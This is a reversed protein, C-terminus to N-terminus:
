SSAKKHQEIYPIFVRQFDLTKELLWKYYEQWRGEDRINADFYIDSSLRIKWQEKKSDGASRKGMWDLQESLDEEIVDKNNDLALYLEKSRKVRLNCSLGKTNFTLEMYAKASGLRVYFCSPDNHNISKYRNKIDGGVNKEVYKKFGIWFDLQLEKLPKKPPSTYFQNKVM